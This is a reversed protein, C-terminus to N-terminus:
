QDRCAFKNTVTDSISIECIREWGAYLTTDSAIDYKHLSKGSESYYRTGSSNASSYYGTFTYGLRSPVTIDPMDSDYVATISINDKSSGTQAGLTVTYRNATSSVSYSCASCKMVTYGPRSSTDSVASNHAGSGTVFGCRTCSTKHTSADVATCSYSHSCNGQALATSINGVNTPNMGTSGDPFYEYDTSSDSRDTFWLKRDGSTYWSKLGSPNTITIYGSAATGRTNMTISNLKVSGFNSTFYKAGVSPDSTGHNYGYADVTLLEGNGGVFIRHLRSNTLQISINFTIIINSGNYYSNWNYAYVYRGISGSSINIVYNLDVAYPDYGFREFQILLQEGADNLMGLVDSYETEDIRGAEYAADAEEFLASLADYAESCRAKGDSIQGTSDSPLGAIGDYISSARAYLSDYLASKIMASRIDPDSDNNHSASAVSGTEVSDSESIDDDAASDRIEHSNTDSTTGAAAYSRCCLLTLYVFLAIFACIIIFIYRSQKQNNM